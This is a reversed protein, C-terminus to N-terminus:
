RENMKQNRLFSMRHDALREEEENDSDQLSKDDDSFSHLLSAFDQKAFSQLDTVFIDSLRRRSMSMVSYNDSRLNGEADNIFNKMTLDTGVDNGFNELMSYDVQLSIDSNCRTIPAIKKLSNQKSKKVYRKYFSAPRENDKGTANKNLSGFRAFFLSSGSASKILKHSSPSIPSTSPSASAIDTTSKPTSSPTDISKSKLFDREVDPTQTSATSLDDSRSNHRHLTVIHSMAEQEDRTSLRYSPHQMDESDSDDNPCDSNSSCPMSMTKLRTQQTDLTVRTSSTAGTSTTTSLATTSSSATLAASSTTAISSTTSSTTSPTTSSTISPITSPITSPTPSATSSVISCSDTSSVTSSARSRYLYPSIPPPPLDEFSSTSLISATSTSSSRNRSNTSKISTSTGPSDNQLPSPIKPTTTTSSSRPRYNPSFPSSPPSALSQFEMTNTINNSKFATSPTASPISPIENDSISTLSNQSTVSSSRKRFVQRTLSNKRIVKKGGNDFENDSKDSEIDTNSRELKGQSTISTSSSRKRFATRTSKKRLLKAPNDISDKIETNKGTRVNTEGMTASPLISM